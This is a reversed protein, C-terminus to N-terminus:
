LAKVANIFTDITLRVIESVADFKEGFLLIFALLGAALLVIAAMNAILFATGLTRVNEKKSGGLTLIVSYILGVVPILLIYVRVAASGTKLLSYRSEIPPPMKMPDFKGEKVANAVSKVEVNPGPVPREPKKVPNIKKEGDTKPPGDFIASIPAVEPEPIEAPANKVSSGTRDDATHISSISPADEPIDPIDAVATGCNPCFTEGDTFIHGCTCKKM